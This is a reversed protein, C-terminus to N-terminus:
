TGPSGMDLGYGLRIGFRFLFKFSSRKTVIFEEPQLVLAACDVGVAAAVPSAGAAVAVLCGMRWPFGVPERASLKLSDM